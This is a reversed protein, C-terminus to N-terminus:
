RRGEMDTRPSPELLRKMRYQGIAGIIPIVLLATGIALTVGTALLSLPDTM